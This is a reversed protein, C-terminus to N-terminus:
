EYMSGAKSFTNKINMCAFLGLKQSDNQYWVIDPPLFREFSDFKVHLVLGTTWEWTKYQIKYSSIM